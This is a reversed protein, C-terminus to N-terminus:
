QKKLIILEDFGLNNLSIYSSKLANFNDFPGISLRYQNEKIKNISLNNLKAEQEIKNKLNNASDFYYFDSVVLLYVTSKKTENTELSVEESLVDMKVENVPVKTAVNKEEDFITGEKAVFTKNKKIEFFEIYPNKFNLDLNNAIKESIVLNFIGPYNIKKHIKTVIFKSNEPNIIKIPTNLKLSSHGTIIKDNNIKKNITRNKFLQDEYILAFGSSSYFVKEYNNINKIKYNNCSSLTIFTFIIFTKKFFIM